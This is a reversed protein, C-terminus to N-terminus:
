RWSLFHGWFEFTQFLVVVVIVAVMLWNVGHKLRIGPAAVINQARDGVREDAYYDTQDKLESGIVNIIGLLTRLETESGLDFRNARYIFLEDDIVEMDFGSGSDILRAMVDPTFVYFADREYQKPAYLTFYDNFDGELALTQSGDFTDTLNSFKGFINNKKADLVMHPLKRPLKVRIYAWNHVSRNKGSGTVYTYNGIEGLSPFVLVENVQRSHGEDFIMGPYYAAIATNYKFEIGNRKAFRELRVLFRYRVNIAVSAFYIVGAIILFWFLAPAFSFVSGNHSVLASGVGLAVVAVIAIVVYGARQLLKTWINDPEHELKFAAIDAKTVPQSLPAYDLEVLKKKQSGTNEM